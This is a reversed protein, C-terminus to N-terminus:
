GPALGPAKDTNEGELPASQAPAADCSFDENPTMTGSTLALKGHGTGSPPKQGGSVVYKYGINKAANYDRDNEYGCSRCKFWRDQVNDEDTYGCKSCTRSTYAPDVQEVQMGEAQAKYTVYEVLQHFAWAHFAKGNPLRDRIDTLDEFVIVDVGQETAHDVLRRSVQHLHHKNYRSERDGLQKIALHASRTGAQQMSARTKEYERRRHALEGGSFFQATSTTALNHIGLDVGLVTPHQPTEVDEAERRCAVHLWWAGDRYHLTASATDWEPNLLYAGHPTDEPNKPLTLHAEIRGHVTSLSCTGEDLNLRYTRADYRVTAATFTPRGPNEGDRRREVCAQLAEAAADRAQTVHNAQLDTVERVQDYTAEHLESKRTEILGDPNWGEEAVINAAHRYQDVTEWLADGAQSDLCLRIRVTRCQGPM